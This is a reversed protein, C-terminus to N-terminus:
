ITAFAAQDGAAARAALAVDDGVTATPEGAGRAMTAAMM